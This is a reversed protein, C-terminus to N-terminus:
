KGRSEVSVEFPSAPLGEGNYLNAGKPNNAWAYRVATPRKVEKSWVVVEDGAIRARAQVFRGEKGAIAFHGLPGGGKAVLGSGVNRFSLRARRGKRRAEKVLPGASALDEDGCAVRRAELALRDGVAKKNLPHIDNWEGVDIAVAMGTNPIELARRQWDRLQAWESEAPAEEAELFNALQVWIFPLSPEGWTARWDKVLTTLLEKYNEPRSVNSEGQYWLAGKIRMPALPAIMANYLGMPKWRIFTTPPRPELKTGLKYRWDGRLDITQESVVLDFAHQQQLARHRHRHDVIDDRQAIATRRLGDRPRDHRRGHQREHGHRHQEGDDQLGACPVARLARAGRNCPGPPREIHSGDTRM